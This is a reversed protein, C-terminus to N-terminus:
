NYPLKPESRLRAWTTQQKTRINPGIKSSQAQNTRINVWNVVDVSGSPKWVVEQKQGQWRCSMDLPQIIDILLSIIIVEALSYALLLCSIFSSVFLTLM